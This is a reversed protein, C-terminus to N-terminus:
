HVMFNRTQKPSPLKMVKNVDNRRQFSDPALQLRDVGEFEVEKLFAQIKCVWLMDKEGPPRQVKRKRVFRTCKEDTGRTSKTM